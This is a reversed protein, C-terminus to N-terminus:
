ASICKIGLYEKQLMSLVRGENILCVESYIADAILKHGFENPHMGDECLYEALNRQQLFITSIDIVRVNRRMGIKFVELNYQEHWHDINAVDGELWQLINQKNLGTSVHAFFKASNLEPLSLLVPIAEQELVKDILQNYANSFQQLTLKPKHEGLPNNSIAKWDFNCDNGGFELVVLDGKGIRNFYRNIYDIGNLITSGFRSLNEIDVGLRQACTNVFNDEAVMYKVAGDCIPQPTTIVGKMVSDGFAFIKKMVNM